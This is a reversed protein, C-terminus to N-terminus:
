DRIVPQELIPRVPKPSLSGSSLGPPRRAAAPEPTETV